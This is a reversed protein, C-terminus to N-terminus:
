IYAFHLGSSISVFCDMSCTEAVASQMTPQSEYGTKIVTESACM